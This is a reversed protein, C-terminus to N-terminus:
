ILAPTKSEAYRKFSELDDQVMKEPNTLMGALGETVVGGPLHYKFLSTVQTENDSLKSFGVKGHMSLMDDDDNTTTWSIVRDLQNKEFKADWELTQGIPSKAKWHYVNPQSTSSISDIHKMFQPFMEINSWIRYCEEVPQHVTISKTFEAM